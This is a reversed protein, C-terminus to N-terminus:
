SKLFFGLTKEFPDIDLFQCGIYNDNILVIQIEKKVETCDKDDLQFVVILNQGIKLYQAFDTSFGIGSLSINKITAPFADEPATGLPRVTGPLNTPKRYHNRFDLHITFVERCPCRVKIVHKNNKYSAVSINKAMSCAPCIITATNDPRVFTKVSLM